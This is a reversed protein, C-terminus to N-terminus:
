QDIEFKRVASVQGPIEITLFYVGASWKPLHLMITNDTKDLPQSLKMLQSGRIDSITLVADYMSADPATINIKSWEAAPNPYLESIHWRSIGATTIGTPVQALTDTSMIALQSFLGTIGTHGGYTLSSGATAYHFGTASDLASGWTAGFSGYSRKFLKFNDAPYTSRGIMLHSFTISDPQSFTANAGYNNIVFYGPVISTGAPKTDPNSWLHFAVVESDPYTGSQPLYLDVNAAPFSNLGASVVARNSYVTGTAIPATSPVIYTAPVETASSGFADHLLGTTLDYQNFQFYRLLGSEAAAPNQILHMKQRVEEQTLAYNYFKVEDVNGNYGSGQGEQADLNIYFPTQSLDIVPMSHHNVVSAIGNLYMTVGTPAYTLVVYNWQTSDCILGSYSGYNVSSDTYCLQLNPTYGSFTFGMAFGYGGSGPYTDHSVIQSFSSQLGHPQIWASISFTNSHIPVTGLSITSGDGPMQVCLGAVTDPGCIGHDFTIISDVTRTHSRAQADTIRLTVGYSGPGPYLVKPRLATDSSVWAAGPFTWLRSAGAYDYMSYDFYTVTDSSCSIQQKDAMPQAIPSGTTYLPSELISCNGCLRIKSDRYFIQAGERAELSKPLGTSYAIWDSMTSDRYYVHSPREDTIAYKGGNAGGQYQLFAVKQSALMSGTINTWTTGGNGSEFVKNPNGGNAMCFVVNNENLPNVVIDTNYYHYTVPITLQTWTNGGDITKFLGNTTTVYMVNYNSRAIDFRWVKNGNGFSHLASYSAGANLSKWLASDSGVYYVNSYRPDVMLKSSFKGYYDDQPWLSNSTFDGSYHIQGALSSPLQLTGIDRFGTVASQGHFVHGTADEGGGLRLSNGAGYNEYLAMNGNHYRGGVVIDQDWGQGFGWFDGSRINKNRVSWNSQSTFFDNSYNVGGDTVLYTDSDNAVAQQLDPHIDFSGHYGGLSSFNFGGDTSKYTSTTGVILSNADLPSVVIDFDYYGQGSSMGFGSSCNTGGLSTSDTSVVTVTWTLGRDTSRIIRPASSGGINACYVYSSNAKTVGLRSGGSNIGSLTGTVNTFHVGADVSRILFLNGSRTGSAYVTDPNSPDLAIDTMTGSGTSMNWTAGSNDSYYVATDGTILIRGTAPSIVMRDGGGPDASLGVWSVGGNTTKLIVNTTGDYCYVINENHPDIAITSAQCTWHQGKDSSRYLTGTESSAYIVSPNSPAVAICYINSQETTLGRSNDRYTEIPGLVTWNATGSSRSGQNTTSGNKPTLDPDFQKQRAAARDYLVTGDEQIFPAIKNRWRIYATIYPDESFEREGKVAHSTEAHSDAASIRMLSDITHVNPHAWDTLSVWRPVTIAAPLHFPDVTQSQAISVFFVCLCLVLLAPIRLRNM